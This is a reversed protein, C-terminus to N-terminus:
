PEDVIEGATGMVGARGLVSGMVRDMVHDMLRAFDEEAVGGVALRELRGAAALGAAMPAEDRHWVALKAALAEPTADARADLAGGCLQCPGPVYQARRCARCTRRALFRAAVAAPDLDLLLFRAGRAAAWGDFRALQGATRPFGELVYGSPAGLQALVAGAVTEGAVLRGRALAGALASDAAAARRLSEGVNVQAVGLVAAARHALTSKGATPPGLLVLRIM